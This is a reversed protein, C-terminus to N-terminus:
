NSHSHSCTEISRTTQHLHLERRSESTPLLRLDEVAHLYDDALAQEMQVAINVHVLRLFEGAVDDRLASVLFLASAARRRAFLRRSSLSRNRWRMWVSSSASRARWTREFM